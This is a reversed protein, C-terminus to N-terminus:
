LKRPRSIRRVRDTVTWRLFIEYEDLIGEIENAHRICTETATLSTDADQVFGGIYIPIRKTENVVSMANTKTALLINVWLFVNIRSLM